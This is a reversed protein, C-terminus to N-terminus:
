PPAERGLTRDDDDIAAAIPGARGLSGLRADVAYRARLTVLYASVVLAVDDAEYGLEALTAGDRALVTAVAARLDAGDRAMAVQIRNHALDLGLPVPHEAREWDWLHLRGGDWAANWPAVDGHWAGFPWTRGDLEPELADLLADLRGDPDTDPADATSRLGKWWAGGTVPEHNVPGAIARVADATLDLDGSAESVPLHALALLPHGRWFGAALLEPVVVPPGPRRGALADTEHAVLADTHADLGVKVWAVTAGDDGIVQIVPKRNPRPAGLAVAIDIDDRGLLEALHRRLGGDAATGDPLRVKGPLVHGAGLRLAPGIVLRNLAQRGLSSAPRLRAGRAHRGSVPLLYRPRRPSPIVAYARRSGAEGDTPALLATVAALATADSRLPSTM